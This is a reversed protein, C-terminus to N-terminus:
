GPTFPLIHLANGAKTIDTSHVTVFLRQNATDYAVGRVQLRGPDASTNFTAITKVAGTASNVQFVKSGRGGFFLTGDPAATMLDINDATLSAPDSSVLNTTFSAVTTGQAATAPASRVADLSYSLLKGTAQDSVFLTRGVTAAGVPKSLGTIIEQEAASADANVTLLSVSGNTTAPCPSPPTTFWSDLIEGASTRTLAIRRRVPDLGTLNRTVKAPSVEVATGANGFGFRTVHFTKDPARAIQGLSVQTPTAPAVLAPLAAYTTFTTRGEGDWTILSNTNDDTFYLKGEAADWYAGNPDAPLAIATPGRDIAPDDSGGCAALLWPISVVAALGRARAALRSLTLAM